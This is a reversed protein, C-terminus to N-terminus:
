KRNKIIIENNTFLVPNGMYLEEGFIQFMQWLEATFTGTEIKKMLENFVDINIYSINIYHDRYVRKGHDTLIVTAEANMNFTIASKGDLKQKLESITKRNQYCGECYNPSGIKSNCGDCEVFKIGDGFDHEHRM